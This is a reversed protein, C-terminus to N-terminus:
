CFPKQPRAILTSTVKLPSHTLEYIILCFSPSSGIVNSTSKSEAPQVCHLAFSLLFLFLMFLSLDKIGGQNAVEDEAAVVLLSVSQSLTGSFLFVKLYPGVVSPKRVFSLQNAFYDM